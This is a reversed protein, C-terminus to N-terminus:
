GRKRGREQERQWNFLVTGKIKVDGKDKYILM